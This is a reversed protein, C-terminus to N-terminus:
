LELLEQAKTQRKGKGRPCGNPVLNSEELVGVTVNWCNPWGLRLLILTTESGCLTCGNTYSSVGNIYIAANRFFQNVQQIQPFLAPM